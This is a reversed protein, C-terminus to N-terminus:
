SGGNEKRLTAVLVDRASVYGKLLSRLEPTQDIEIHRRIGDIAWELIIALHKKADAPLATLQAATLHIGDASEQPEDVVLARRIVTPDLDDSDM